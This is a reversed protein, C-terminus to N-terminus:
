DVRESPEAFVADIFNVGKAYCQSILQFPDFVLSTKDPFVRIERCLTRRVGQEEAAPRLFLAHSEGSQRSLIDHRIVNLMTEIITM